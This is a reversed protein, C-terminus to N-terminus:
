GASGAKATIWGPCVWPMKTKAVLGTLELAECVIWAMSPLVPSLTLAFRMIWGLGSAGTRASRMRSGALRVPPSAEVAVTIREAGAGRPPCATAIATSPGAVVGAVTTM